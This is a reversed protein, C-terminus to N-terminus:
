IKERTSGAFPGFLSRRHQYNFYRKIDEEWPTIHSCLRSRSFRYTPYVRDFNSSPFSCKSWEPACVTKSARRRNHAALVTRNETGTKGTTPPEVITQRPSSTQDHYNEIALPQHARFTVPHHPQSPSQTKGFRSRTSFRSPVLPGSKLARDEIRRLIAWLLEPSCLGM